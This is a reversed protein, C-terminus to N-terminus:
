LSNRVNEVFDPDNAKDNKLNHRVKENLIYPFNALGFVLRTFKYAEIKRENSNIDDVWLFRLLDPEKPEVVISLFAKEIDGVLTTKHIHFHLLIDFALPALNPGIELCDNLNVEGNRKSSADYVVRLKTTSRDERM